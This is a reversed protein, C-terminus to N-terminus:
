ATEPTLAFADVRKDGEVRGSTTRLAKRQCGGGVGGNNKLVSFPSAATLEVLHIHRAESRQELLLLSPVRANEEAVKM